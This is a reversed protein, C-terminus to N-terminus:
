RKIVLGQGTPLAVVKEIQTSFFEDAVERQGEFDKWGYDDFVM